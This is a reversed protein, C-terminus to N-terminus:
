AAAAPGVAQGCEATAACARHVPHPLRHFLQRDGVLASAGAGPAFLVILGFVVSLLGGLILMWLQRDGQAAPDCRHDRFYGHVLAWAGIFLMLLIATRPPWAFTVIGAAIGLLGWWLWGGPQYQNASGTFAAILSIVGDVLAFAGYLLM